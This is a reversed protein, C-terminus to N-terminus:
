SLPRTVLNATICMGRHARISRDQLLSKARLDQSINAQDKVTEAPKM